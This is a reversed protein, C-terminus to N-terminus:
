GHNLRNWGPLTGQSKIGVPCHHAATRLVQASGQASARIQTDVRFKSMVLVDVNSRRAVLQDLFAHVHADCVEDIVAPSGAGQGQTLWDLKRIAEPRTRRQRQEEVVLVALLRDGPQEEIASGSAGGESSRGWGVVAPHRLVMFEVAPVVARIPR